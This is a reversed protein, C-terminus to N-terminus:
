IDIVPYLYEESFGHVWYIENLPFSDERKEYTLSYLPTGDCDRAHKAIFLRAGSDLEVLVGLGYKHSKANNVQRYTRGESDDPDKLDAINILKSMGFEKTM